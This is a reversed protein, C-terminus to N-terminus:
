PFLETVSEYSRATARSHAPGQAWCCFHLLQCSERPGPVVSPSFCTLRPPLLARRVWPLAWPQLDELGLCAGARPRLPGALGGEPAKLPAGWSDRPIDRKQYSPERAQPSTCTGEGAKWPSPGPTVKM